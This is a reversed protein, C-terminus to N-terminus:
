LSYTTVCGSYADIIIQQGDYLINTAEGTGVICLKKLERAVIAAIFVQAAV